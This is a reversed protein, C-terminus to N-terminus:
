VEHAIQQACLSFSLLIWGVLDLSSANGAIVRTPGPPRISTRFPLAEYLELSMLNRCSGSDAMAWIPKDGISILTWFLLKNPDASPSLGLFDDTSNIQDRATEGPPPTMELEYSFAGM